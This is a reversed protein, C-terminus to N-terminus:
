EQEQTKWLYWHWCSLENEWSHYPLQKSNHGDRQLSFDKWGHQSVLIIRWEWIEEIVGLPPWPPRTLRCSGWIIIELRLLDLGRMLDRPIQRLRSELAGERLSIRGGLNQLVSCRRQKTYVSLGCSEPWLPSGLVTFTGMYHWDDGVPHWWEDRWESQVFVLNGRFNSEVKIWPRVDRTIGLYHHQCGQFRWDVREFLHILLNLAVKGDLLRIMKRDTWWIWNWMSPALYFFLYKVYKWSIRHSSCEHNKCILFSLSWCHFYSMWAWVALRASDLDQAQAKVATGCQRRRGRGTGPGLGSRSGTRVKLHLRFCKWISGWNLELGQRMERAKVCQTGEQWPCSLSPHAWSVIPLPGGLIIPETEQPGWDSWCLPELQIRQPTHSGTGLLKLACVWEVWICICVQYVWVDSSLLCLLMSIFIGLWLCMTMYVSVFISCPESHSTEHESSRCVIQRSNSEMRPGRLSWTSGRCAELNGRIRLRRRRKWLGDTLVHCLRWITGVCKVEDTASIPDCVVTFTMEAQGPHLDEWSLKKPHAGDQSCVFRFLSLVQGAEEKMYAQGSSYHCKGEVSHVSIYNFSPAHNWAFLWFSTPTSSLPRTRKRIRGNVALDGWEISHEKM